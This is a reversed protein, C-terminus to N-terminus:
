FMGHANFSWPLEELSVDLYLAETSTTAKVVPHELCRKVYVAWRADELGQFGRYKKLVIESRLLWPVLMVDSWNLHGNELWLGLSSRSATATGTSETSAAKDYLTVLTQLAKTFAEHGETQAEPTQAQSLSEYSIIKHLLAPRFKGSPVQLFRPHCAPQYPRRPFADSCPRRYTAGRMCMLYPGSTRTIWRCPDKPLLTEETSQGNAAGEAVRHLLNFGQLRM